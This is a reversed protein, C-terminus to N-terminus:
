QNVNTYGTFAQILHGHKRNQLSNIKMQTKEAYTGQTNRKFCHLFHKLTGDHSDLM